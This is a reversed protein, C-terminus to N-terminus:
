KKVTVKRTTGDTMKVINIGKAPLYIRKGDLSYRAAEKADSATTSEIGDAGSKELILQVPLLNVGLGALRPVGTSAGTQQCYWGPNMESDDYPQGVLLQGLTINGESDKVWYGAYLDQFDEPDGEVAEEKKAPITYPTEFTVENWNYISMSPVSPTAKVGKAIAVNKSSKKEEEGFTQNCEINLLFDTTESGFVGAVKMGVVNYGVYPELDETSFRAFVADLDLDMYSRYIDYTEDVGVIKTADGTTETLVGHPSLLVKSEDTSATQANMATASMLFAFMPLLIKKMLM